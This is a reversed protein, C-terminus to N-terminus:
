PRSAAVCRGDSDFVAGPAGQSRVAMTRDLWALTERWLERITGPSAPVHGEGYSRVLRVDKGLRYLAAYTRESQQVPLPDFEGHLLLIPATVRDLRYFPSNRVYRAPDQWPPVGMRGQGAEAWAFPYTTQLGEAFDLKLRPDLAGYFASLDSISGSAVVSRLCPLETALLLATYGGYSHGLVGIRGPDIRGTGLAEALAPRLGAPIDDVPEGAGVPLSPELVAYGHAALLAAGFEPEFAALSFGAPPTEGQVTGPYPIVILPLQGRRDGHPPLLLWDTLPGNPGARHLAVTEPRDIDVLALNIRDLPRAHRGVLALTAIGQPSLTITVAAGAIRSAAPVTTGPPLAAIKGAAGDRCRAEVLASAAGQGQRLWLSPADRVATFLLRTGVDYANVPEGMIAAGAAMTSLHAAGDAGLSWLGARTLLCLGGDGGRLPGAPADPIAGTLRVPAPGGLLFWDARSGGSTGFLLPRDGFWGASATFRGPTTSALAPQVGGTDLPATRGSRIDHLYLQGQQWAEADGRAFFLVRSGDPAWALLDPALDCDVCPSASAGELSVIRLRLRRSQFDLSFPTDTAPAPVAAGRELLAVHRRDPSLSLDIFDGAALSRVSGHTLDVLVLRRRVSGIGAQLDTGSGIVSMASSRGLATREWLTPLAKQARGGFDLPLPLKGEPLAVALLHGDDVWVPNANGAPQDPAVPLWRVRRTAMDVVGLTIRDHQLRYVALRRGSPSFGAIWYGARPDQAFLPVLGGSGAVAAVLVHSRARRVFWDYTFRAAAKQGGLREVVLARADPSFLVRGYDEVSLMDEVGYPRAMATTSALLCLAALWAFRM